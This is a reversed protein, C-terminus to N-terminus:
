RRQSLNRSPIDCLYKVTHPVLIQNISPLSRLATIFQIVNLEVNHQVIQLEPPSINSSNSPGANDSLWCPFYAVHESFTYDYSKHALALFMSDRRNSRFVKLLTSFTSCTTGGTLSKSDYTPRGLAHFDSLLRWRIRWPGSGIHLKGNRRGIFSGINLGLPWCGM